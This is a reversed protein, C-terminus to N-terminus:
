TEFTRLYRRREAATRVTERRVATRHRRVERALTGADGPVSGGVAAPPVDRRRHACRATRRWVPQPLGVVTGCESSGAPLVSQHAGDVDPRRHGPTGPYESQRDSGAVAKRTQQQYRDDLIMDDHSHGRNTSREYRDSRVALCCPCDNVLSLRPQHRDVLVTDDHCSGRSMAKRRRDSSVAADDVAAM